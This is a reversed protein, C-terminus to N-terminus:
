KGKDIIEVARLFIDRSKEVMERNLNEPVDDMTHWYYPMDDMESLGFMTVARIGMKSFNAGDSGLFQLPGIRYRANSSKAAEELIKVAEHSHKALFMKEETTILFYDGSPTELNFVIANRKKLEDIHNRIFRKSGRMHEEGAIALIWVETNEPRNKSLMRGADMIAGVAALDDNAGPVADKSRLFISVYLIMATGAILFTYEVPDILNSKIFIRLISLILSIIAVFVTLNLFLIGKKRHRGLLPFEYASDYHASLIVLNKENNKPKIKGLVHFEKVRPFFIDIVELLLNQQFIYILLSLIILATSIIPYGFFYFIAGIIYFFATFWIFDLFGRPRSVYYEKDVSDAFKGMEDYIIEGAKQEGYSGSLRPGTEDILKKVFDVPDSFDM